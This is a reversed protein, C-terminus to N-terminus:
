VMLSAARQKDAPYHTLLEAVEAELGPTAKWTADSCLENPIAEYTESM